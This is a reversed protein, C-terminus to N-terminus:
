REVRQYEVLLSGPRETVQLSLRALDSGPLEVSEGREYTPSFTVRYVASPEIGRLACDYVVYPSGHRRFALM